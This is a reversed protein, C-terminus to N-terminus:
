TLQKLKERENQTEEKAEERLEWSRVNGEDVKNWQIKRIVNKAKKKQNQGLGDLINTERQM